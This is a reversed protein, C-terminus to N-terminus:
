EAVAVETDEALAPGAIEVWGQAFMGTTVAVLGTPTQVAYGGESLAILAEVPAALVDTRIEGAFGVQVDASDIKSIAAPNNVIVTVSLSPAESGVSGEPTSLARGVSLVRGPTSKDDPLTVTVKAGREISASEALEAAVTIVKRTPTVSMLPGNASAGPQVFVSDVRVAGSLIEVDGVAVAGTVPLGLDEQWKKIAKIMRATLVGEDSRVTVRPPRVAAAASATQSPPRVREGPSPQPGIPYGLATLNEAIIRVDRGVLGEGTLTRYLPMEGYFLPVPRDDARYLQRGRRIQAGAEPLWTVTAERHGALARPTGYGITGTMTKSTNLDRRALKVTTATAATPPTEPPRTSSQRVALFAAGAVLIAIGAALRRRFRPPADHNELM